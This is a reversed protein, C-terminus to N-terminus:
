VCRSTYLLCAKMEDAMTLTAGMGQGSEVYEPDQAPDLALKKWIQKEKKDTGSDDGRSVFPLQEKIIRSFVAEINDTHAIPQAPGAVIFDNYMM